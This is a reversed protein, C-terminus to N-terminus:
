INFYQVLLFFHKSYKENFFPYKGPGSSGAVPRSHLMIDVPTSKSPSNITNQNIAANIVAITFLRISCEILMKNNKM